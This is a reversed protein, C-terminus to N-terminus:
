NEEEKEEITEGILDSVDGSEEEDQELFTTDDEAGGAIEVDDEEEGEIDAPTAKAAGAKTEAEAAEELSIVEAGVPAVPEPEDPVVAVVPAAKAASARTPVAVIEYVTGCKPCLIPDRALDYFKTGCNGCIRKIGLEPKAM